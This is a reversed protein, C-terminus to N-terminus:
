SWCFATKITISTNLYVKCFIVALQFRNYSYYSFICIFLLVIKTPYLLFEWYMSFRQHYSFVLMIKSSLAGSFTFPCWFFCGFLFLTVYHYDKHSGCHKVGLWHCDWCHQIFQHLAANCLVINTENNRSWDAIMHKIRETVFWLTSLILDKWESTAFMKKFWNLIKAHKLRCFDSGRPFQFRRARLDCFRGWLV